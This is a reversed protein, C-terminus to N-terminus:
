ITFPSALQSRCNIHIYTYICTHVYIYITVPSKHIFLRASQSLKYIHIHIHIHTCIYIYASHSKSHLPSSVTLIYVRIQKYIHTYMYTYITVPLNETFLCASQAFKLSQLASKNLKTSTQITAVTAKINDISIRASQSNAYIYIRIYM